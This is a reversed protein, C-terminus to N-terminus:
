GDTLVARKPFHAVFGEPTVGPVHDVIYVWWEHPMPNEPERGEVIARARGRGYGNADRRYIRGPSPATPLTGDYLAIRMLTATDLVITKRDVLVRGKPLDRVYHIDGM